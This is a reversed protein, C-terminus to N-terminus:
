KLVCVVTSLIGAISGGILLTWTAVRHFKSRKMVNPDNDLKIAFLAPLVFCVFASATSGMLEFVYSLEPVFLAVVLAGTCLILTLIIHRTHSFPPNSEKGRLAYKYIMVDFTYRCPFINLPFALVVTTAFAAFGIAMMPQKQPDFNLLIDDQTYQAFDLYGALGILVYLSFTLLVSRNVVKNMRRESPRELENQIQFVNVQCTFAFMMIPMAKFIDWDLRGWGHIEPQTDGFSHNHSFDGISHVVTAMVVYIISLVGILSTYRLSNMKEVFSLPLMILLWFFVTALTLTGCQENTLLHNDKNPHMVVITKGMDNVTKIYAASTGFCFIIINLEVIVGMIKGFMFVTLEEYSKLKTVRRVYLMLRISYITAIVSVILLGLGLCIGCERFTNPLALCGAGLTASCLNFVSGRISGKRMYDSCTRKEGTEEDVVGRFVDLFPTPPIVPSAFASMQREKDGEIYREIEEPDDPNFLPELQSSYAIVAANNPPTRSGRPGRYSSPRSNSEIASILPENLNKSM